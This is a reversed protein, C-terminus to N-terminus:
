PEPPAGENSMPEYFAIADAKNRKPDQVAIHGRTCVCLSTM